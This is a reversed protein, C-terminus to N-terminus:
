SPAVLAFSALRVTPWALRVPVFHFSLEADGEFGVTTFEPTVEIVFRDSTSGYMLPYLVGCLQGTDAPDDLGIRGRVVVRDLHIVSLTDEIVAPVDRIQRAVGRPLHRGRRRGSSRKSKDSRTSDSVAQPIDKADFTKAIRLICPLSGSFLRLEFLFQARDHSRFTIRLHIQSFIILVIVVLLFLLAWGVLALITLM